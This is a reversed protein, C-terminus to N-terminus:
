KSGGSGKERGGEKRGDRKGGRRNGVCERERERERMRLEIVKLGICCSVFVFKFSSVINKFVRYTLWKINNM